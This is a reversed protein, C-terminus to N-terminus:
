AAGARRAQYDAPLRGFLVAAVADSLEVLIKMRKLLFKMAAKIEDETVTFFVYVMRQVIQFTIKGPKRTRLGGAVTLQRAIEVPHGAPKSLVRDSEIGTGWVTCLSHAESRHGDQSGTTVPM